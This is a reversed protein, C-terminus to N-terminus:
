RVVVLERKRVPTEQAFQYIIPHDGCGPLGQARAEAYVRACSCNEYCDKARQLGNCNCDLEGVCGLCTDGLVDILQCPVAVLKM